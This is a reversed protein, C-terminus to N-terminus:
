PVLEVPTGVDGWAYLWKMGEYPANVCGHSMKHGWNHHWYAYHIYYSPKFQLNFEVHKLSYNRPDGQSYFRVYDHWHKKRQIAFTGTPTLTGLGVSVLFRRAAFGYEYATLQAHTKDVLIHKQLQSSLIPVTEVCWMFNVAATCLFRNTSTSNTFFQERIQAITGDQISWWKGHAGGHGHTPLTLVLSSSLPITAVGYPYTPYASTEAYEKWGQEKSWEWQRVTPPGFAFPTTLVTPTTTNPLVAVNVGGREEMDAAFFQSHLAGDGAYVRVHSGGGVGAGVVLLDHETPTPAYLTALTVGGLFSERFAFFSSIPQGMNTFLAITSDHGAWRGVAIEPTADGLFNGVAISMGNLLVTNPFPSFSGLTSGDQRHVSILPQEGPGSAVLLEAVGDGGLDAAIFASPQAFPLHLETTSTYAGDPTFVSLSADHPDNEPAIEGSPAHSAYTSFPVCFLFGGLAIGIAVRIIGGTQHM